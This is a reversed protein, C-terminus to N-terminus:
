HIFYIYIFFMSIQWNSILWDFAVCINRIKCSLSDVKQFDEFWSCCGVLKQQLTGWGEPCLKVCDRYIHSETHWYSPWILLNWWMEAANCMTKNLTNVCIRNTHITVSRRLITHKYYVIYTILFQVWLFVTESFYAVCLGTLLVPNLSCILSQTFMDISLYWLHNFIGLLVVLM